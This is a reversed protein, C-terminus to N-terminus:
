IEFKTWKNDFLAYTYKFGIDKLILKVEDFHGILHSVNHSDSSLVINGGEKAIISLLRYDPCPSSRLDRNIYGTNVEFLSNSKLATKLYKQAITWYKKNHLFRDKEKQDFKTIVDFHGIIDPKRDNIYKCFVNFYHDAFKLEDGNFLELASTFYSYNSDIPYHKGNVTAYHNSGIIYDYKNRNTLSTRDEETGLYIQIKRAYKQQLRRIESIYEETDKLCYRMDHETYAHSSFGISCLGLEIARLVM